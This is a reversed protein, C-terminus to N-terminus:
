YSVVAEIWEESISSSPFSGVLIGSQNLEFLTSDAEFYILGNELASPTGWGFYNEVTDGDRTPHDQNHEPLKYHWLLDGTVASHLGIFAKSGETHLSLFSSGGVNAFPYADIGQMLNIQNGAGDLILLADSSPYGELKVVLRNPTAMQVERFVSYGTPPAISWLEDGSTSFAYLKKFDSVVITEGLSDFDYCGSTVYGFELTWIVNGTLDLMRLQSHQLVLVQDGNLVVHTDNIGAIDLHRVWQEDGDPSLMTLFLDLGQQDITLMGGSEPFMPSSCLNFDISWLTDGDISVGSLEQGLDLYLNCQSDNYVAPYRENFDWSYPLTLTTQRMLENEASYRKLLSGNAIVKDGQATFAPQAVFVHHRITHDYSKTFGFINPPAWCGSILVALSSILASM